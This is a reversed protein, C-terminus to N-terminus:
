VRRGGLPTLSALVLTMLLLKWLSPLTPSVLKGCPSRGKRSLRATGVTIKIVFTQLHKLQYKIM